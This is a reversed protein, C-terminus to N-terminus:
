RGDCTESELVHREAVPREERLAREDGGRHPRRVVVFRDVGVRVDEVREAERAHAARALALARLVLEHVGRGLVDGESVALVRPAYGKSRKERTQWAPASASAHTREHLGPRNKAAFSSLAMSANM